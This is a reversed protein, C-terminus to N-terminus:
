PLYWYRDVQRIHMDVLNRSKMEINRKGEIRMTLRVDFGASTEM